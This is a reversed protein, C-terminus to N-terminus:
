AAGNCEFFRHQYYYAQFSPCSLRLQELCNTYDAGFNVTHDFFEKSSLALKKLPNKNSTKMIGDVNFVLEFSADDMFIAVMPAIDRRNYHKLNNEILRRNINLKDEM